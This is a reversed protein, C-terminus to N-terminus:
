LKKWEYIELASHFSVFFDILSMYHIARNRISYSNDDDKVADVPDSRGLITKEYDTIRHM